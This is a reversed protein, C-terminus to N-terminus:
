FRSRAARRRRKGYGAPSVRIASLGGGPGLVMKFATSRGNTQGGITEDSATTTTMPAGLFLTTIPLRLAGLNESAPLATTCLGFKLQGVLASTGVEVARTDARVM